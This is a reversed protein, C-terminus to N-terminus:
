PENKEPLSQIPGPHRHQSVDNEMSSHDHSMSGMMLIHSLPCLLILGYILLSGLPVHFLVAATLGLIPLLCGLLMILMHSKKM